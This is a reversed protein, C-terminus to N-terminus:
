KLLYENIKNSVKEELVSNIPYNTVGSVSTSAKKFLNIHNYLATINSRQDFGFTTETLADMTSKETWQSIKKGDFFTDEEKKYYFHAEWEIMKVLSRKLVNDLRIIGYYIEDRIIKGLFKYSTQWFENYVQQFDNENISNEVSTGKYTQEIKHILSTIDKSDYLISYGRDLYTYFTKLEHEITTHNKILKHLKLKKLGFFIRVMNFKKYSIPIIDLSFYDELMTRNIMNKEIPNNIVLVSIPKGFSKLWDFKNQDLYKNPDKTFIFLDLDSFEDVTSTNCNHLSGFSVISCIDDNERGLQKIKQIM